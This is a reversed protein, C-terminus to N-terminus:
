RMPVWAGAKLEYALTDDDTARLITGEAEDACSTMADMLGAAPCLIVTRRGATELEARLQAVTARLEGIERNRNEVQTRAYDREKIVLDYFSKDVEHMIGPTGELRLRALSADYATFVEDAMKRLADAVPDRMIEPRLRDLLGQWGQRYRALDIGGAGAKLRELEAALRDYDRLRAADDPWNVM